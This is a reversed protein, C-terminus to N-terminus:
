EKKNQEQVEAYARRCFEDVSFCFNKDAWDPCIRESPRGAGEGMEVWLNHLM